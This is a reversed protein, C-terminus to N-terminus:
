KVMFLFMVLEGAFNGGVLAVEGVRDGGRLIAAVLATQVLVMSSSSCSGIMLQISSNFMLEVVSVVRFLDLKLDLSSSLTMMDSIKTLPEVLYFLKAPLREMTWFDSEVM